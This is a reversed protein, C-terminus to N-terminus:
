DCNALYYNLLLLVFMIVAMVGSGKDPPSRPRSYFILFYREPLIHNPTSLPNAFTPNDSNGLLDPQLYPFYSSTVSYVAQFIFRDKWLLSHSPM